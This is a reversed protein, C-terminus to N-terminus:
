RAVFGGDVLLGTGNIFSARRSALFLVAETVEDATGLRGAPSEAAFRDRATEDGGWVRSQMATDILGPNVANVRIGRAGYELAASRTLGMVAHKSAIYPSLGPFGIESGMSANNVIAGGGTRLMASLEHKMSWFVGRVNTNMVAEYNENPQEALVAGQGEMGANNFAVDLRGHRTLATDVLAAIDAEVRVDCRIFVAEGGGERIEKALAEGEIERRAGLVLRAGQEAFALAASRGMGSSAGTIVVVQEHFDHHKDTRNKM